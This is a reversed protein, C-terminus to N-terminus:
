PRKIFPTLNTLHPMPCPAHPMVYKNTIREGEDGEDGEDGGSGM